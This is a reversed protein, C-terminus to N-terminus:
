SDIKIPHCLGVKGFLVIFELFHSGKDEGFINFLASAIM